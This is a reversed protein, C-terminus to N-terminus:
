VDKSGQYIFSSSESGLNQQQVFDYPTMGSFATFDKIFHSQDTYGLEYAINTLMGYNANSLIQLANEFRSIRQLKKASIGVNAKFRRQLQRESLKYQKVLNDISVNKTPSDIPTLHFIDNLLVDQKRTHLKEILYASTHRVREKHSHAARLKEPLDTKDLMTIDPTVDTLMTADIGWFAPLAHPFFSVGFHSFSGLWTADTPKTDIGSVYCRPRSESNQQGLIPAYNDTDQYILRPFRDAFSRIHLTLKEGLTADYSWFYRVWPKLEKCVPYIKYQMDRQPSTVANRYICFAGPIGFAEMDVGVWNIVVDDDPM